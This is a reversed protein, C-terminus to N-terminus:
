VSILDFGERRLVLLDVHIGVGTQAAISDLGERQLVWKAFDM